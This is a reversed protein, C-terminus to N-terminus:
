ECRRTLISGALWERLKWLWDPQHQSLAKLAAVSLAKQKTNHNPEIVQDSIRVSFQL